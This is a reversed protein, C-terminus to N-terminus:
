GRAAYIRVDDFLADLGTHDAHFDDEIPDKDINYLKFMPALVTRLSELAAMLKSAAAAIAAPDNSDFVLTPDDAGAGAVVVDSLPNINARGHQKALSHLRLTAARDDNWQVQLIFPPQLGKVNLFFFGDDRTIATKIKAPRSSDKLTVTGKIPSGAAAVGSVINPDATPPPVSDVGCGALMLSAAATCFILIAAFSRKRKNMMKM